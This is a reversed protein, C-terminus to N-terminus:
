KRPKPQRADKRQADQWAQAGAYRKLLRDAVPELAANLEYASLQTSEV